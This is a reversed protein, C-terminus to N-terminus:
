LRVKLPALLLWDNSIISCGSNCKCGANCALKISENARITFFSFRSTEISISVCLSAITFLSPSCIIEFLDFM